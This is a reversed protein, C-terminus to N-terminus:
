QGYKLIKVFQIVNEKHIIDVDQNVYVNIEQYIKM